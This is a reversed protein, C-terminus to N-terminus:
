EAGHTIVRNSGSVMEARGVCWMRRSVEGVM